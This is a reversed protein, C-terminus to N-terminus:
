MRWVLHHGSCGVCVCWSIVLTLFWGVKSRGALQCSVHGGGFPPAPCVLGGVLVWLDEDVVFVVQCGEEESVVFVLGGVVGLFEKFGCM